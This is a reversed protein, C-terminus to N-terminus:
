LCIVKKMEVCLKGSYIQMEQPLTLRNACCCRLFILCSNSTLTAIRLFLSAMWIPSRTFHKSLIINAYSKKEGGCAPTTQLAIARAHPLALPLTHGRAILYFCLVGRKRTTNKTNASGTKGLQSRSLIAPLYSSLQGTVPHYGDRVCYRFYAFSFLCGFPHRKM